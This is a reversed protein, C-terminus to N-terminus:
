KVVATCVIEVLLSPSALKAEVCARTPETGEEVWADWVTNMGQFLAIDKLFVNAQLIHHKDSGYNGLIEEIKELVEATQAKIDGSPNKCVQGSVYIIGNHIAVKSFRGNSEYREIAM